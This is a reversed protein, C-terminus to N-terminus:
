CRIFFQSLPVEDSEAAMSKIHRRHGCKKESFGREIQPNKYIRTQFKGLNISGILQNHQWRTTYM